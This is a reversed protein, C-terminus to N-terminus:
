FDLLEFGSKHDIKRIGTTNLIELIVIEGVLWINVGKRVCGTITNTKRGFSAHMHLIPNKKENLFITGIGHSESIGKLFTIMPIPSVSNNDKPGVIVKSKKDAGGLYLVLASNIKKELAFKEITDPLKDGNELRLTYIKGIKGESYKM